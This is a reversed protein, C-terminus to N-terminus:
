DGGGGFDLPGRTTGNSKFKARWIPRIHGLMRTYVNSDTGSSRNNRRHRTFNDVSTRNTPSIAGVDDDVMAVADLGDVGM